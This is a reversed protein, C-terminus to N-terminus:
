IAPLGMILRLVVVVLLYMGYHMAASTADLDFSALSTVAGAVTLIALIVGIEYIEPSPGIGAFHKIAALVGWLGAYVVACIAVRSILASGGYPQLEDNRFFAYGAWVLPPALVVAGLALIFMPVTSVGDANAPFMFRFVLALLPVFLSVAVIGAIVPTSFTKVKREIPKLVAEGSTGTPGFEEPAHIVVEDSKDPIKISVKCKPCPGTKGAFKDSVKFRAHCGHCIVQIPMSFCERKSCDVNNPKNTRYVQQDQLANAAFRTVLPVENLGLRQGLAM